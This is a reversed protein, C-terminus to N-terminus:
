EHIQPIVKQGLSGSIMLYCESEREVAKVFEEPDDEFQM